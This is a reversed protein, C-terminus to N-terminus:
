AIARGATKPPEISMSNRVVTRLVEVLGAVNEGRPLIANGLAKVHPHANSPVIAAGCLSLFPIDNVGDGAGLIEAPPIGLHEAVVHILATGKNVGPPLYTTSNGNVSEEIVMEPLGDRRRRANINAIARRTKPVHARRTMVACLGTWIAESPVKVRRMEYALEPPTLRTLPRPAVENPYWVAGGCEAIIADFLKVDAPRLIGRAGLTYDLDRGTNLVIKVGSKRMRRLLSIFERNDLPQQDGAITGDFDVVLARVKM